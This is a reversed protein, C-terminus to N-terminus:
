NRVQMAEVAKDIAKGILSLDSEMAFVSSITGSFRVLGGSVEHVVEDWGGASLIAKVREIPVQHRRDEMGASKWELRFDISRAPNRAAVECTVGTISSRRAVLREADWEYGEMYASMAAIEEAIVDPSLKDVNGDAIEALVAVRESIQSFDPRRSQDTQSGDFVLRAVRNPLSRWSQFRKSSVKSKLIDTWDAHDQKEPVPDIGSVMFFLTMAYGYTDVLASRRSYPSNQHLQEPALYGLPKAMISKELASVHWSLDFDLVVVDVNEPDVWYGNLMVNTPRIDRHLVNEPTRHAALIVRALNAAVRLITPWDKLYRKRVAESLDPGDIWEMVAIAPIETADILKVIGKVGIETLIRMSRIGRRYTQLMGDDTRLEERLVKIAVLNGEPSEARYVDGFAGKAVRELIRYGFIINKPPNATVFWARHIEEDYDLAFKSFAKYQEANGKTFLSRAYANLLSRMDDTARSSLEDPSPLSDREPINLLVPDPIREDTTEVSKSLRQLCADLASHDQGTAAYRIVRVGLDEAWRDTAEDTRSTIWYHPGCKLGLTKLRLLHRSIAIDDASIGLFINTRTLLLASLLADYEQKSQFSDLEPKTFIWNRSNQIRGHLHAIFHRGSRLDACLNLVEPGDYLDVQAGPFLSTFSRQALPDLNLNVIGGIRSSWLLKYKEPIDGTDAKSLASRIEAEYTTQGLQQQLLDFCLWYDGEKRKTSIVSALGTRMTSSQLTANKKELVSELHLILGVWSPALPASMGAGIWAIAPSTREALIRELALFAHQQDDFQV